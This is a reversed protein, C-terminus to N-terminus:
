LRQRISKVDGNKSLKKVELVNGDLGTIVKIGPGAEFVKRGNMFGEAGNGNQVLKFSRDGWVQEYVSEHGGVTGWFVTDHEIHVGYM